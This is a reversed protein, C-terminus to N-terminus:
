MSFAHRWLIVHGAFSMAALAPLRSYALQPLISFAILGLFPAISLLYRHRALRETDFYNFYWYV